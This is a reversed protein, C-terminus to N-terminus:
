ALYKLSRPRLVYVTRPARLGRKAFGREERRNPTDHSLVDAICVARGRYALVITRARLNRDTHPYRWGRRGLSNLYGKFRALSPFMRYSGHLIYASQDLDEVIRKATSPVPRRPRGRKQTMRIVQSVGIICLGRIFTTVGISCSCRHRSDCFASRLTDRDTQWSCHHLLDIPYDPLV